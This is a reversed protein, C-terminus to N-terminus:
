DYYYTVTIPGDWPSPFEGQESGEVEAQVTGERPLPSTTYPADWKGELVVETNYEPHNRYVHKVLVRGKYEYFLNIVQNHPKFVFYDQGNEDVSDSGDYIMDAFQQIPGTYTEGVTGRVTISQAFPTYMTNLFEFTISSRNPNPVYHVYITKVGYEMEGSLTGNEVRDVVYEINDIPSISYPEGLKGEIKKSYALFRSFYFDTSKHRVIIEHKVRQYYYTITQVDSTYVGSKPAGSTEVLEYYAGPDFLGYTQYPEGVFGYMVNSGLEEGTERLVYKMRVSSEEKEKYYLSITQPVESSYTGSLDGESRIFNYRNFSSHPLRTEVQYPLGNGGEFVKSTIFQGDETYYNATVTAQPREKYYLTIENAEPLFTGQLNGEVHSLEYYQGGDYPELNYTTGFAGSLESVAEDASPRINRGEENIYNIPIRGEPYRYRYRYVITFPEQRFVGERDGEIEAFEYFRHYIPYIRELSYKKGAVGKIVQRDLEEGQDTLHLITIETDRIDRYTLTLEATEGNRYQGKREGEIKVFEYNDLKPIEVEYSLGEIGSKYRPLAFQSGDELVFNLKVFGEKLSSGDETGYYYRVEKTEEAFQGSEDYYTYNERKFGPIQKPETKYNEGINGELIDSPAIQPFAYDPDTSYGDIEIGDYPPFVEGNVWKYAYYSVIVKGKQEKTAPEETTTTTTSTTTVTSTTSTTTTSTTTATSTTSATITSSTTPEASTTTTSSTTPEAVTTTTSSTTPEVSTTTTSSTTPEASTTTTSSTTPETVTTTTSSTTPGVSTTTTSSTTPEASTTTTSSTTPETVTTTTSSTTPGVSTTTTSSTTPEVSTTTTSSTTPEVSTTTTSSTTPEESTTTSPKSTSQETNTTTLGTSPEEVTTVSSTQPEEITSMTTLESGSITVTTHQSTSSELSTTPNPEVLTPLLYIYGVYDYGEIEEPVYTMAQGKPVIRVVTSKLDLSEAGIFSSQYNLLGAGALLLFFWTTKSQGHKWLFVGVLVLTTFGLLIAMYHPQSDSTKPLIKGSESTTVSTFTQLPVETSVTTSGAPPQTKNQKQYVLIFREEDAQAIEMPFGEKLLRLHEEPVSSKEAFSYSVRSSSTSDQAESKAPSFLLVAIVISLLGLITKNKKKM